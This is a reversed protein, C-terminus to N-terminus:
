ATTGRKAARRECSTSRHDDVTGCRYRHQDHRNSAERRAGCYPCVMDPRPPDSHLYTPGDIIDVDAGTRWWNWLRTGNVILRVPEGCCRITIRHNTFRPDPEDAPWHELLDALDPDRVTAPSRTRM